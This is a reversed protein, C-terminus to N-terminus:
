EDDDRAGMLRALRGKGDVWWILGAFIGIFIFVDILIGLSYWLDKGFTLDFLKTFVYNEGILLVIGITLKV